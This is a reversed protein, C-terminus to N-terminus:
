AHLIWSPPPRDPPSPVTQPRCRDVTQMPLEEVSVIFEEPSPRRTVFLEQGQMVPLKRERGPCATFAIRGSDRDHDTGVTPATAREMTCIGPDGCCCYDGMCYPGGSEERADTHSNKLVGFDSPRATAIMAIMLILSAQDAKRLLRMM